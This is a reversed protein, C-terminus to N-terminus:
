KTCKQLKSIGHKYLVASIYADNSPSLLVTSMSSLLPALGCSVSLLSWVPKCISYEQKHITLVSIVFEYVFWTLTYLPGDFDYDTSNVNDQIPYLPLSSSDKAHKVHIYIYSKLWRM